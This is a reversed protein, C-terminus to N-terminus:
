EVVLITSGTTERSELARHAAAADRLPYQAKVPIAVSGDRVVKLLEAANEELEERTATYDFVTPRTLYLSGNRSLLVPDFGEVAGSSQGFSVMLGRPRLCSLSQEFTDRGVSDYVVSVGAGGTIERVREPVSEERYLVPHTCGAARAIEAKEPSGVTGIVTAGLHRAWQCLILGVGGAAAHVLITEDASLPYTQRLLYRVTMGKLMMAAAQEFSVDGPLQVLRDAQVCHYQAYAGPPGAVYAVREGGKWRDVGPGVADVIGAGEMGLGTPLAPVPYYGTRHYVDIFNLGAAHVRVRVEGPGPDRVPVDRYQMVDPGGPRDCQIAFAM